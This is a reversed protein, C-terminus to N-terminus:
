YLVMKKPIVIGSKTYFKIIYVGKALSQSSLDMNNPYDAEFVSIGSLNVLEFKSILNMDYVINVSEHAPNPLIQINLNVDIQKDISSLTEVTRGKENSGCDNSSILKVM